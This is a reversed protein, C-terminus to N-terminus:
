KITFTESNRMEHKRHGMADGLSLAISCLKGLPLEAAPYEYRIRISYYNRNAGFTKNTIIIISTYKM